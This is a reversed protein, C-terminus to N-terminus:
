TSMSMYVRERASTFVSCGGQERACTGRALTLGGERGCASFGSRGRAPDVKAVVRCLPGRPRARGLSGPGQVMYRTGVKAVVRSSTRPGAVPAWKVRRVACPAYLCLAGDCPVCTCCLHLRTCLCTDQEHTCVRTRTCTCSAVPWGCMCMLVWVHIRGHAYAPVHHQQGDAREAEKGVAALM